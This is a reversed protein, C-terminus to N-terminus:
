KWMNKFEPSKIQLIALIIWIVSSIFLTLWLLLLSKDESSIYFFLILCFLLTLTRWILTWFEHIMIENIPQSEWQAIRYSAFNLPMWLFRNWINRLFDSFLFIYISSFVYFSIWMKIWTDLILIIFWIFLILLVKWKDLFKWTFHTVLLIFFISLSSIMWISTYTHIFYSMIIPWSIWPLATYIWVWIWSIIEWFHKKSSIIKFSTKISFDTSTHNTWQWIMPLLSFLVILSSSIMLWDKWLFDAIFGWLLPAIIIATLSVVWRFWMKKWNWWDNWHTFGLHYSFWFFTNFLWWLVPIIYFLFQNNEIYQVFFLSVALVPTIFLKNKYPWFKNASIAALPIFILQTLSIIFYFLFISHFSFWYEKLFLLPLLIAIMTIWIQRLFSSIILWNIKNEHHHSHQHHHQFHNFFM